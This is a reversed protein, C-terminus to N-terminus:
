ADLQIHAAIALALLLLGPWLAASSPAHSIILDQTRPIEFPYFFDSPLSPIITPPPPLLEKLEEDPLHTWTVVSQVPFAQAMGDGRTYQWAGLIYQTRAAVVKLQPNDQKGVFATMFQVHVGVVANSCTSTDADFTATQGGSQVTLPVWESPTLPDANGLGGVHTTNIAIAVPVDSSACATALQAATMSLVCAASIDSGVQVLLM